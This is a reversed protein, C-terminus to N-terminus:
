QRSPARGGAHHPRAASQQRSQLDCVFYYWRIGIRLLHGKGNLRDRMCASGVQKCKSEDVILLSM